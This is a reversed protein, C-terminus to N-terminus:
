ALAEINQIRISEEPHERLWSSIEEFKNFNQLAEPLRQRFNLNFAIGLVEEPTKYWRNLTAILKDKEWLVNKHKEFSSAYFYKLPVKYEEGDVTVLLSQREDGGVESMGDAIYDWELFLSIILSKGGFSCNVINETKTETDIVSGNYYWRYDGLEPQHHKEEMLPSFSFINNEALTNKAM